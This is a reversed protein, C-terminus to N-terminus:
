HSERRYRRDIDQQGADDTCFPNRRCWIIFEADQKEDNKERYLFLEKGVWRRLWSDLVRGRPLPLQVVHLNRAMWFSKNLTLSKLTM